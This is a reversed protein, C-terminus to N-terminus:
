CSAAAGPQAQSRASVCRFLMMTSTLVHLAAGASEATRIALCSASLTVARHYRVAPHIRALGDSQTGLSADIQEALDAVGLAAVQAVALEIALPLGDLRQVIATIAEADAATVMGPRAADAQRAFFRQAASDPRSCDLPKLPWAHEGPMGLLERSTAVIRLSSPEAPVMSHLVDCVVDLVHECNDLLVVLDM